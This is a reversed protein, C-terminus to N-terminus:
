HRGQGDGKPIDPLPLRINLTFQPWNNGAKGFFRTDLTSFSHKFELGIYRSPHFGLGVSVAPVTDFDQRYIWNDHGIYTGSKDEMDISHIGLGAILYPGIGNRGPRWSGLVYFICDVAVGVHDVKVSKSRFGAPDSYYSETYSMFEISPRIAWHGDIQNEYFIALWENDFPM